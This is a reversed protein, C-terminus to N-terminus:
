EKVFFCSEAGWSFVAKYAYGGAPIDALSITINNKCDANYRLLLIGSVSLVDIYELESLKDVDIAFELKEKVPNHALRLQKNVPTIGTPLNCPVGTTYSVIGDNYCRLPGFNDVEIMPFIEGTLFQTSGIGKIVRGGHYLFLGTISFGYEKYVISLLKQNDIIVSDKELVKHQIEDEVSSIGRINEYVNSNSGLYFECTDGVNLSFDYLLHFHGHHFNFVSDGNSFLYENGIYLSTGVSPFYTVAIKVCATDNVVTDNEAKMYIYGDQEEYDGFMDFADYSYYWEAGVPPWNIQSKAVISIFLLVILLTNKM